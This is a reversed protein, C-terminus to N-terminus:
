LPNALSQFMLDDDIAIREIGALEFFHAAKITQVNYELALQLGYRSVNGACHPRECVMNYPSLGDIAATHRNKSHVRCNPWMKTFEKAVAISLPKKAHLIKLTDALEFSAVM